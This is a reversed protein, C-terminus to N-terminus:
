RGPHSYTGSDIQAVGRVYEQDSLGNKWMGAGRAGFYGLLFVLLVAIALARGGMRKKGTKMHLAEGVPCVAVCDMCGTCEPDLVQGRTSVPLRAMCVRDCLGCDICSKPDRVVRTPSMWSVLGLLAGYPCFYRCWFGKVLVSGAALVLLVVGATLSLRSFFLGMHVDAMRNYPGELFARLGFAGMTVISQLFFLMLLYKVGRLLRDAWRWPRFNRGFIRRGARGLLESLFGVPCIWACFSKRLLFAMVLAILVLITAAPHIRNLTGQALWDFLGIVGGIPLFGEVGPPREPLPLNGARAAGYFRAFAFGIWVCSAAMASQVIWRARFSRQAKKGSAGGLWRWATGLRTQLSQLNM